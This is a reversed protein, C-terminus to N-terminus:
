IEGTPLYRFSVVKFRRGFKANVPSLGGVAQHAPDAADLFDPLRQVTAEVRATATINGAPDRAEGYTRITFTDSRVTLVPALSKLVDAQTLYGPIGVGTDAPAVNSRITSNTSDAPYVSTTIPTGQLAAPNLNADDIATQLAGKLGLAGSSVRRNVFEGMSLFPGRLKVQDVIKQALTKIQDDTLTRFGHWNDNPTGVPDRFRPFATDSGGGAPSGAVNFNAGRLGALVATWAEVSTSNVNFAGDVMLAAAMKLCGAPETLSSVLASKDNTPGAPIMRPNRLPKGLPDDLFERLVTPIDRTTTATEAAWVNASAPTNRYTLTPAAGSFFWGDWLSENCLYSVDALPVDRPDVGSNAYGGNIMPATFITAVKERAVYASAWSNGVQNAPSYPTQTLDAHQFDALSLLPATPIEFFSLHTRGSRLAQNSPAQTAGYYASRGGNGVQLVGSFDFVERIQEQYQPGPATTATNSILSNMWPQRPNGTFVLDAAQASSGVQAVKHYAEWVCVPTGDNNAKLQAYTKQATQCLPPMAAPGTNTVIDAVVQGGVGNVTASKARTTDELTIYFRQGGTKFIFQASQSPLLTPLWSIAVSLGGRTSFQSSDN